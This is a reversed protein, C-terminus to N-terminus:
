GPSRGRRWLDAALQRRRRNSDGANEKLLRQAPATIVRLVELHEILSHSDTGCQAKQKQSSIRLDRVCKNHLGNQKSEYSVIECEDDKTVPICLYERALKRVRHRIHVSPKSLQRSPVRLFRCSGFLWGAVSVRLSRGASFGSRVERGFGDDADSRRGQLLGRGHACCRAACRPPEDRSGLSIM